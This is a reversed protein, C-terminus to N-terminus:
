TVLMEARMEAPWDKNDTRDCDLTQVRMPTCRPVAPIAYLGDIGLADLDAIHSVPDLAQCPSVRQTAIGGVVRTAYRHASAHCSLKNRDM